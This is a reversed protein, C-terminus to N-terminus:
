KLVLLEQDKLHAVIIVPIFIILINIVIQALFQFFRFRTKKASNAM